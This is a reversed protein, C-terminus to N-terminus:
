RLVQRLRSISFCLIKSIFNFNKSV